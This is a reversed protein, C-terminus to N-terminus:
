DLMKDVKRFEAEKRKLKRARRNNGSRNVEKLDNKLQNGEEFMLMAQEGIM